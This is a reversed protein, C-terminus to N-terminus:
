SAWTIRKIVFEHIILSFFLSLCCVLAFKLAAPWQFDLLAFGIFAVAFHHFLFITYSAESLRTIWPNVSRVSQQLFRILGALFLWILLIKAISHLEALWFVSPLPYQTLTWAALLASLGVWPPVGLFNQQLAPYRYMAYGVLFYPLNDALRYISTLGAWEYYAVGTARALLMLCFGFLVILPILLYWSITNIRRLNIWEYLKFKHCIQVGLGILLSYILLDMLFWLHFLPVGAVVAAWGSQGKVWALWYQQLVNLSFWTTLLPIAIRPIRKQWLGPLGWRTVTLACFYGSLWFFAPMRFLHILLAVRDFWISQSADSVLWHASAGYVGAGHLAVGLLMLIARAADLATNNQHTSATSTQLSHPTNM